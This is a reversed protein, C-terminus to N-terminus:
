YANSFRRLVRPIHESIFVLDSPTSQVRRLSDFTNAKRVIFYRLCIIQEQQEQM